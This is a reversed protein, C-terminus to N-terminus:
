SIEFLLIMNYFFILTGFYMEFLKLIKHMNTDEVINTKVFKNNM